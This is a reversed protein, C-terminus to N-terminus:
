TIVEQNRIGIKLLRQEIIRAIQIPLKNTIQKTSILIRDAGGRNAELDFGSDRSIILVNHKIAWNVIVPDKTGPIPMGREGIAHANWGFTRLKSAVLYRKFINEDILIRPHTM